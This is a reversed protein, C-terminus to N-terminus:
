AIKMSKKQYMFPINKNKKMVLYMSTSRMINKRNQKYQKATVPFEIGSYNLNEIFAKDSKKIRQPNKTKLILIDFIVGDLVNM